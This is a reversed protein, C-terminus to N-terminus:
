RNIICALLANISPSCHERDGTVVNAASQGPTWERVISFDSADVIWTSRGSAAIFHCQSDVSVSNIDMLNHMIKRVCLGSSNPPVKSGSRKSKKRGVIIVSDRCGIVIFSGNVSWQIAIRDNLPVVLEYSTVFSSGTLSFFTMIGDDIGM